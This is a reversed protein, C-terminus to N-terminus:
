EGKRAHDKPWEMQVLVDKRPKNFLLKRGPVIVWGRKLRSPGPDAAEGDTMILYADFRKKNKNAHDSPATFCTGGARTRRPAIIAGKKWVTESEEDVSTDFHYTTFTTHRSLGQLEGFLLELADNDVSGSQDIYVAISATYKRRSGPQIGPYKRNMRRISTSREGRHTMGIFQKLIARWDITGAALRRLEERAEAGVSGWSGSSDCKKVAKRLAEGIKGKLIEREEDTVDKDWDAHSDTGIVTVPNGDKDVLNGDEDLSLEGLSISRNGEQEISDRVDQNEMIKTFYWESSKKSPLAGIFQSIKLWRDYSKQGMREIQVATLDEFPRGPILGGKPLKDADLYSNIALDQAYNAIIHPHLRRHTCHHFVLHYAEHKLVELVADPSLSALFRPNWYMHPIGGEVTVGLTPIRTDRHRRIVRYIETYFPESYLRYMHDRLEHDDFAAAAEDSVQAEAPTDHATTNKAM